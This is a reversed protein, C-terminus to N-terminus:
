HMEKPLQLTLFNNILRHPIKFKENTMNTFPEKILIFRASCKSM